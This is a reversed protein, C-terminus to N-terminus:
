LKNKYFHIDEILLIVIELVNNNKCNTSISTEKTSFDILM